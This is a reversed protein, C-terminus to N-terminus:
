ECIAQRRDTGITTPAYRFVSAWRGNIGADDGAALLRERVEPDLDLYDHHEMSDVLLPLAAKLRKGCIHDSAEWIQTAVESVADDYIRRGKVEGTGVGGEGSQAM